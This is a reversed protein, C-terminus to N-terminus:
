NEGVKKIIYRIKFLPMVLIPLNMIFFNIIYYRFTEDKYLKHFTIWGRFNFYKKTKIQQFYKLIIVNQEKLKEPFIRDNEVYTEFIGLRINIFFERLDELKKIRHSPKDSGIQNNEHQRYKITKDPLYTVKGKLSIVLAIWFDHPVYKSKSPLPLIQPIFSKKSMVTCGTVCNYLYQLKYNRFKNIKKDLKMYKDFSPYIKELNQNVVELDTFVLDAKDQKMKLYTKSIKEELWYDDQDSLMYIENEVKSLLFEFNKIYGLNEKQTYVIIRDDKKQYEKLINVTNDQSNDDSIILRFDKYTQNLISEIQERIYKEGNYTAMLVDITETKKM